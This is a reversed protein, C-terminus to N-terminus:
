RTARQKINGLIKAWGQHVGDRHEPALTGIARHTLTLTSKSNSEKVRYQVHSAVPYSMFMPGIIELLTPPKIVQVHGWLHGTNNGLDRFWRGGPWRELKLNQNVGKGDILSECEALIAEFAIEAPADIEIEQRVDLLFNEPLTLTSSSM